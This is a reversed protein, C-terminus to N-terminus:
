YDRKFLEEISMDVGLFNKINEKQESTFRKKGQMKNSVVQQSLNLFKALAHYTIQQKDMADLLNKYPSMKRREKALKMREESPIDRGKYGKKALSLKACHEASLKKGFFHNKEGKQAASIKACSEPTHSYNKTGGDTLNYGSPAICNFHAIWFRERENIQERTECEELVEITFNEIKHKRIARGVLSKKCLAHEKFRIEVSRTTQGVYIKGDLKNTIKYIIGFM